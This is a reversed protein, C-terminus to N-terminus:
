AHGRGPIRVRLARSRLGIAVSGEATFPEGDLHFQLPGDEARIHARQVSRWTVGRARQTSGLALHRATWLRALPSRDDVLAAELRGDDLQAHPALRLGNGYEAGNAFAVMLARTEFPEDDLTLRYRSARYTFAHGSGIRIYPWLGRRGQARANFLAAIAADFGFGAINFFAREGVLGVDVRRDGGTLAVDIAAGPSLPLNLNRAFGNGSGAPVIGLAADTGVLANGVENITGDGGWAIVLTAGAAVASSALACAHGGGTTVHVDGRMGAAEIRAGLLAVRSAAVHPDAGAGSLPNVIAVVNASGSATLTSYYSSSM